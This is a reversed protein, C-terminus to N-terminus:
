RSVDKANTIGIPNAIAAYSDEWSYCEFEGDPNNWLYVAMFPGVIANVLFCLFVFYPDPKLCWHVEDEDFMSYNSSEIEKKEEERVVVANNKPKLPSKESDKPSLM